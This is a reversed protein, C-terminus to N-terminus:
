LVFNEMMKWCNRKACNNNNTEGRRVHSMSFSFKLAFFIFIQENIKTQSNEIINNNTGRM